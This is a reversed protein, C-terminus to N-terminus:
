LKSIDSVTPLLRGAMWTGKLRPNHYALVGDTSYKVHIGASIEAREARYFSFVLLISKEIWGDTCNPRRVSALAM